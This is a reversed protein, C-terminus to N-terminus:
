SMNFFYHARNPWNEQISQFIIGNRIKIETKLLNLPTAKDGFTKKFPIDHFFHLRWSHLKILPQHHENNQTGNSFIKGFLSFFKFLIKTMFKTDNSSRLACKKHPLTNHTSWCWPPQVRRSVKIPSLSPIYPAQPGFGRSTCHVNCVLFPGVGTENSM